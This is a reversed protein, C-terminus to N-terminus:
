SFSFLLFYYFSFSDRKEGMRETVGTDAMNTQKAKIKKEKEKPTPGM